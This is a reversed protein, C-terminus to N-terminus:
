KAAVTWNTGNCYALVHNAGSGTITAGWTATSSDTVGRSSGETGAACTPLTSFAGVSGALPVTGTEVTGDAQKAKLMLKSAGNTKDFWFALDGASLEGDGPATNLASVIAGKFKSRGGEVWIAWDNAGTGEDELYLEYNKVGDHQSRGRIGINQAVVGGGYITNHEASLAAIQTTVNSGQVVVSGYLGTADGGFDKSGAIVAWGGGGDVTITSSGSVMTMAAISNSGQLKSFAPPDTVDTILDVNGDLSTDATQSLINNIGPVGFNDQIAASLDAYTPGVSFSKTTKDYVFGASGGFAGADNFQIQKTSGGPTGGGSSTAPRPGIPPPGQQAFIGAEVLLVLLVAAFAARWKTM